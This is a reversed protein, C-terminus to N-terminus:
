YCRCNPFLQHTNRNLESDWGTYCHWGYDLIYQILWQQVSTFRCWSWPLEKFSLIQNFAISSNWLSNDNCCSHPCLCAHHHLLLQSSLGSGCASVCLFESTLPKHFRLAWEWKTLLAVDLGELGKLWELEQNNFLWFHGILTMRKWVM